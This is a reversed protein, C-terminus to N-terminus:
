GAISLEYAKLVSPVPIVTGRTRNIELLEQPKVLGKYVTDNYHRGEVMVGDRNFHQVAPMTGLDFLKGSENHYYDSRRGTVTDLKRVAPTVANETIFNRKIAGKTTLFDVLQRGKLADNIPSQALRLLAASDLFLITSTQETELVDDIKIFAGKQDTSIENFNHKM